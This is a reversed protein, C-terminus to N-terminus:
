KSQMGELIYLMEAKSSFLLGQKIEEVAQPQLKNIPTQTVEKLIAKPGPKGYFIAVYGDKIGLFMNAKHERCYDNVQLSMTIKEENFTEINWKSYKSQFEKYNMGILNKDPKVQITEQDNCKSYFFTQVILTNAKVKIKNDIVSVEQDRSNINNHEDNTFWWLFCGIGLFFIMTVGIVAQKKTFNLHELM